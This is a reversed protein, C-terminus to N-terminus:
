EHGVVRIPAPEDDLTASVPIPVSGSMRPLGLTRADRVAAFWEVISDARSDFDGLTVEPLGEPPAPLLSALGALIATAEVSAGVGGETDILYEYLDATAAFYASLLPGVIVGDEDHAWPHRDATITRADAVLHRAAVEVLSHPM